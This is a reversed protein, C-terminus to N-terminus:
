PNDTDCIALYIERKDNRLVQTNEHRLPTRTTCTTLKYSTKTTIDALIEAYFRHEFRRSEWNKQLLNM